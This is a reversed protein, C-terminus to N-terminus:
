YRILQGAKRANGLIHESLKFERETWFSQIKRFRHEIGYAEIASSLISDILQNYVIFHCNILEAVKYQKLSDYERGMGHFIQRWHLTQCCCITEM